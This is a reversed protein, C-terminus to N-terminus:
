LRGGAAKSQLVGLKRITSRFLLKCIEKEAPSLHPNHFLCFLNRIEASLKTKTSSLLAAKSYAEYHLKNTTATTLAVAKKTKM